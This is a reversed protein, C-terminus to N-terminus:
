DSDRRAAARYDRPTRGTADRFHRRFGASSGFGVRAAIQEITADDHELLHRARDLRVRLLYKLPSLGTHARFRRDLTRPSLRAHAAIDALTLPRDASAELWRVTPELGGSEALARALEARAAGADDYVPLVLQRATAAAVEDGHDEAVLRLWLDLGGLFGASTRFPGDVVLTGAPDVAVRPHRAALEPVHSWETTARRGDLVGAAALTFAGTGVALVRSGRDVAARLADAVGPPPEARFGDHGAVLVAGAGDLGDLGRDATVTLPAPRATTVTRPVACVRLEYAAGPASRAVADLVLGPTTLQHAPVGDLVLLAIVPVASMGPM